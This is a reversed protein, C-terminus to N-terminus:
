TISEKEIERMIDGIGHADIRNDIRQQQRRIRQRIRNRERETLFTAARGYLVRRQLNMNRPEKDARAILYDVWAARNYDTM